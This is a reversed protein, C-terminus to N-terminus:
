RVDTRHDSDDHQGDSEAASVVDSRIIGAPTITRLRQGLRVSQATRVLRGTADDLTISYGRELTRTPSLSRLQTQRSRLEARELELRRRPARGALRGALADVRRRKAHVGEMLAYRLRATRQEVTTRMAAIRHAPSSRALRANSTQLARRKLGAGDRVGRGLRRRRDSLDQRLLTVSPAVTEAAASPTAARRDAAMDAITTDTEHGIGTVVPLQASRIAHAVSEDNFPMLDEFSGGGRVLLIVDAGRVSGARRLATVLTEAAGDGQVTAPSLVIDVCPARRRMVTVVDRLVAGTRSTVVVVRRPLLPLARKRSDDFLGEAALKRRRQDVALALAGVGAPELRDVYLQYRGDQDYVDVRGHAIVTMGNEPRFPIRMANTRFAVCKLAARADKLTFYVHGSAPTSLNSIEGEVLVDELESRASLTDRILDTFASVTYRTETV